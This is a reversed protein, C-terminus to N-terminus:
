GRSSTSPSARRPSGAPRRRPPPWTRSRPRCSPRRSRRAAARRRHRQAAGADRARRRPGGRDADRDVDRALRRRARVGRLGDRRSAPVRGRARGSACCCARTASTRRRSSSRTPSCGRSATPLRARRAAALAARRASAAVHARGRLARRPAPADARRGAPLPAGGGAGPRRRRAAAYGGFEPLLGGAGLQLQSLPQRAGDGLLDLLEAESLGTRSAALAGLMEGVLGPRDLEYDREYRDLVVELLGDLDDPALLSDLLALSRSTTATSACSTSCSACTARAPSSPRGHPHPRAPLPRAGELVCGPVDGGGGRAARRSRSCTSARRARAAQLWVATAGPRTGAVVDCGRPCPSRSGPWAAAPRERHPAPRRGRARVAGRPRRARELLPAFGPRSDDPPREDLALALEGALHDLLAAESPEGRQAAVYHEIVLDDPRGARRARALGALATSVGGGPAGSCSWAAPRRCGVAVTSPSCTTAATSRRPCWRRPTHASTSAPRSRRARADRSAPSSATSAAGAPRRARARRHRAPRRLRAGPLGRRARPGQARRPPASGEDATRSTPPTARDAPLSTEVWAPDRLYFYRTAPWRPANLVGHLIELETVSRGADDRSGRRATPWTPRSRTPCGATASASCASSTRGAHARDRGPLDAAGRGRGEARRHRGLAPRGRGLGRRAGRM